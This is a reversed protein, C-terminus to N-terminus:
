AQRSDLLSERGGASRRNTNFSHECYTFFLLWLLVVSAILWIRIPTSAHLYLVLLGLVLGQLAMELGTVFSHSKGSRILRQYFHERHPEYWREGKVVRRFLTIGTDLVFNAHLLALPVLLWPGAIMPLWLTLVALLFGLPVSGSDGMFIRAQPYNHPLFGLAASAIAVSWLVPTCNYSHLALGGLLATGFGTLIAQGAALGNIGDMFNFANAYGVIWIFALGWAFATAPWPLAVPDMFAPLGSAKLAVLATVAAVSHVGFRLAAGVTKIDDCFSVGGIVLAAALVAPAVDWQLPWGFCVLLITGGAMAIGGGRVVPTSHSSRANPKDMAGLRALIKAVPFALLYSAAAIVIVVTLIPM